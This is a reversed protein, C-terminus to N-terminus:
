RVNDHPHHLFKRLMCWFKSLMEHELEWPWFFSYTHKIYIAIEAKLWDVEQPPKRNELVNSLWDDTDRPTAHRCKQYSSEVAGTSMRLLVGHLDIAINSAINETKPLKTLSFVRLLPKEYLMIHYKHNTSAATPLDEGSEHANEMKPQSFTAIEHQLANMTDSRESGSTTLQLKLPGESIREQLRSWTHSDIVTPGYTFTLGWARQAFAELFTALLSPWSGCAELAVEWSRDGYTVSLTPPSNDSATSLPRVNFDCSPPLLASHPVDSVTILHGVVLLIWCSSKYLCKGRHDSDSLHSVHEKGQLWSQQYASHELLPRSPHDRPGIPEQQRLPLCRFTQFPAFAIPLEDITDCSTLVLSPPRLECGYSRRHEHADRTAELFERAEKREEVSLGPVQLIIDHLISFNQVTREVHYWKFGTHFDARGLTADFSSKTKGVAFGRHWRSRLIILVTLGALPKMQTALEDSAKAVSGIEIANDIYHSPLDFDFVETAELSGDSSANSEADLNLKEDIEPRTTRPETFSPPYTPMFPNDNRASQDVAQSDRMEWDSPGANRTNVSERRRKAHPLQIPAASPSARPPTYWGQLGRGVLSGREDFYPRVTARSALRKSVQESRLSQNPFTAARTPPLSPFHVHPSAGRSLEEVMGPSVELMAEDQSVTAREPSTDM